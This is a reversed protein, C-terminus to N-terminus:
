HYRGSPQSPPDVASAMASASMMRERGIRRRGHWVTAAERGADHAQPRAPARRGAQQGQHPPAGGRDPPARVGRRRHEPRARGRRAHRTARRAVAISRASRPRSSRRASSRSARLPHRPARHLNELERVNGPWDYEASTCWRRTPCRSRGSAGSATTSRRPLPQRAAPHRLAARAAAADDIPIVHLRYFLDERFRGAEVEAALDKNSAAVVRVDVRSARDGGVPRVERDQLVRLLKVQLAPSMEAVEDLFITGGNRSSSCAPAHGVAGTFAGREHGFM